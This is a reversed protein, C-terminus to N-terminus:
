FLKFFYICSQSSPPLTGWGCSRAAPGQSNDSSTVGTDVPTVPGGGPHCYCGRQMSFLSTGVGHGKPQNKAGKQSKM